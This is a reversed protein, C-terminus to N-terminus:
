NEDHLDGTITYQSPSQAVTVASMLSSVLLLLSPVHKLAIRMDGGRLCSDKRTNEVRSERRAVALRFPLLALVASCFRQTSGELTAVTRSGIEGIASVAD